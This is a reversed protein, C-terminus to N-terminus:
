RLRLTLSVSDAPPPRYEVVVLQTDSAAMMTGSPAAAWVAYCKVTPGAWTLGLRFRGDAGTTAPLPTQLTGALAPCPADSVLHLSARAGEVPLNATDTVLGKVVVVGIPLPSCACVPPPDVIGCAVLLVAFGFLRYLQNM